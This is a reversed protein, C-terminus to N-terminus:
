KTKKSNELSLYITPIEEIIFKPNEPSKFHKARRGLKELM